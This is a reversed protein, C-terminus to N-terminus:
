NINDLEELEVDVVGHKINEYLEREEDSEKHEPNSLITDELAEKLRYCCPKFTAFTLGGGVIGGVVPIAKKFFDRM